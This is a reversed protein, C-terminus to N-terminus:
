YKYQEVLLSLLKASTLNREGPFIVKFELAHIARSDLVGAAAYLACRACACRRRGTCNNHDSCGRTDILKDISLADNVLLEELM